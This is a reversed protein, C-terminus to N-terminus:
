GDIGREKLMKKIKSELAEEMIKKMNSGFTTEGLYKLKLYLTTNLRMTTMSNAKPDVDDWPYTESKQTKLTKPANETVEVAPQGEQVPKAAGIAEAAKKSPEQSWEDLRELRSLTEATNIVPPRSSLKPKSKEQTSM